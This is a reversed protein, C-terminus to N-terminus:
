RDPALQSFDLNLTSGRRAPRGHRLVLNEANGRAFPTLDIGGVQVIRQKCIPNLGPQSPDSTVPSRTPENNITVVPVSRTSTTPRRTLRRRRVRPHDVMHASTSRTSTAMPSGCIEAAPSRSRGHRQRYVSFEQPTPHLAFRPEVPSRAGAGLVYTPRARHLETNARTAVDISPSRAVYVAGVHATVKAELDRRIRYGNSPSRTWQASRM